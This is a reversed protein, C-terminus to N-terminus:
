LALHRATAALVEQPSTKAPDDFPRQQRVITVNRGLAQCWEPPYGLHIVVTPTGVAAAIHALGGDVGVFLRAREIIAAATMIDVTPLRECFEPVRTEDSGTTDVLIPLQLRQRMLACLEHFYEIPWSRWPRRHRTVQALYVFRHLGNRALHAEASCRDRDNVHVRGAEPPAVGSAEAFVTSVHRGRDWWDRDLTDLLVVADYFPKLLRRILKPHTPKTAKYVFPTFVRRVHPNNKVFTSYPPPGTGVDVVYREALREITASAYVLDGLGGMRAVFVRPRQQVGLLNHAIIKPIQSYFLRRFVLRRYASREVVLKDM